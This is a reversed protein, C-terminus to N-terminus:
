PAAPPAATEKAALLAEERRAELQKGVFASQGFMLRYADDNAPQATRWRESYEPNAPDLRDARIQKAFRERLTGLGAIAKETWDITPDPDLQALPIRITDNQMGDGFSDDSDAKFFIPGLAQARDQKQSAAAMANQGPLSRAPPSGADALRSATRQFASVGRSPGRNTERHSTPNENPARRSAAARPDLRAVTASHNRSQEVSVHAMAMDHPTSGTEERLAKPQGDDPTGVPHPVSFWLLVAAAALAIGAAIGITLPKSM